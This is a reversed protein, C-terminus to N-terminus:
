ITQNRANTLHPLWNKGGTSFLKRVTGVMKLRDNRMRDMLM